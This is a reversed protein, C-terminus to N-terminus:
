PTQEPPIQDSSRNKSHSRTLTGTGSSDTRVTFTDSLEKEASVGFSSTKLWSGSCFTWFLLRRLFRLCLRFSQTFIYITQFLYFSVSVAHGQNSQTHVSCHTFRRRRITSSMTQDATLKHSEAWEAKLNM